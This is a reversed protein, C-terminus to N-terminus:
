LNIGNEQTEKVQVPTHREQETRSLNMSLSSECRTGDFPVNFADFFSQSVWRVCTTKGLCECDSLTKALSSKDHSSTDTAKERKREGERAREKDREGSTSMEEVAPTDEETNKRKRRLINKMRFLSNVSEDARLSHVDRSVTFILSFLLQLSQRIRELTMSSVTLM